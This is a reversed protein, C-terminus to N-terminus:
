MFGLYLLVDGVAEVIVFEWVCLKEIYLTLNKFDRWLERLFLPLNELM